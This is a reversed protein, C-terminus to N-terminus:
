DRNSKSRREKLKKAEKGRDRNYEKNEGKKRVTQIKKRGKKV